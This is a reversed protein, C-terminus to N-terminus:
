GKLFTKTITQPLRHLIDQIVFLNDEVLLKQIAIKIRFHMKDWRDEPDTWCNLTSVADVLTTSLM